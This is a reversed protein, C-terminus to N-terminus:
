HQDLRFADRRASMLKLCLGLSEARVGARAADRNEIKVTVVEKVRHRAEEQDDGTGAMRSACKM